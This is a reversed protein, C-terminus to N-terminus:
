QYKPNIFLSNEEEVQLLIDKIIVEPLAYYAANQALQVCEKDHNYEPEMSGCYWSGNHLFICHNAWGPLMDWPFHEDISYLTLDGPDACAQTLRGDPMWSRPMDWNEQEVYGHISHSGRADGKYITVRKGSRTVLGRGQAAAEQIINM